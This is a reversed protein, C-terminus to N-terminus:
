RLYKRYEGIGKQLTQYIIKSRQFSAVVSDASLGAAAFMDNLQRETPFVLAAVDKCDSRLIDADIRELEHLYAGSNRRDGLAKDALAIGKKALRYLADFGSALEDYVQAFAAADKPVPRASAAFFQARAASQEPLQLLARADAVSVHPIALSRASLSYTRVQPYETARREFWWGFLQMRDDTLLPNGDYDRATRMNAGFLSAIGRTEVPKIRTAVTCIREEATSGRIHTQLGPYGLDLGAVYIDQAGCLRAFDWATTSVSGGAALAGKGGIRREMYQGLPFLSACLVIEKCPFRFVPPYAASETILVSSPSALGAIHRAAHYQPDVLVIFDPEVGARLCARLATDTCIVLLREKLAALHPLVDALTPGAALVLAGLGRPCTQEYRAVGDLEGLYRLNRCSNRMWLASFRELTNTNVQSKQKARDIAAVLSAYYDAAHLLHNNNAVIATHAFGGAREILSVVEDTDAQLALVVNRAAFVPSWDVYRLAYFFYAANPEIIILADRPFRKAYALPAYGLGCSFFACAYVCDKKAGAVTQEAERAPDYQSHWWKGQERASPLGNKAAVIELGPIDAPEPSQATMGHVQALAPFRECFLAINKNWISNM